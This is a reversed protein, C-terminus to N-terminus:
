LIIKQSLAQLSFTYEHFSRLDEGDVDYQDICFNNAVMGVCWWQVRFNLRNIIM